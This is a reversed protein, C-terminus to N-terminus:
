RLVKEEIQGSSGISELLPSSDTFVITKIPINLSQLVQRALSTGDDVPRMFARIEAANPSTCAKRIVGYKWYIPLVADTKKNGLMLLDGGVSNDYFQYSADCVGVLCLDERNVIKKFKVKSEKKHVKKM